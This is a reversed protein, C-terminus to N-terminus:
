FMYYFEQFLETEKGLEIEKGEVLVIKAVKISMLENSNVHMTIFKKRKFKCFVPVDEWYYSFMGFTNRKCFLQILVGRKYSCDEIRKVPSIYKEIIGGIVENVIQEFEEKAEKNSDLMYMNNYARLFSVVNEPLERPRRRFM